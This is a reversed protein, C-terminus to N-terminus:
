REGAVVGARWDVGCGGVTVNASLQELSEDFAAEMSAAICGELLTPLQERQGCAAEAADLM